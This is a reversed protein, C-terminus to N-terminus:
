PFASCTPGLLMHLGALLVGPLFSGWQQLKPGPMPGQRMMPPMLPAPAGSHMSFVCVCVCM